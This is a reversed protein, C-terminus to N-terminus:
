CTPTVSLFNRILRLGARSSKEPHFQVGYIPPREIIATFDQGYPTTAVADRIDTVVFQYSHVFYFDTGDPISECLDGERLAHVQNWGVHPVSMGDGPRLPVIDGPVLGLGQAHGGESGREALLQMGLCIGLIPVGRGAMERLAVDWGRSRLVSVGAAFSGVGPLVVHTPDVSNPEAAVLVDGGCEELARRASGTNCLGHDILLVTM